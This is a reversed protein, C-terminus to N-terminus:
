RIGCGVAGGAVEAAPASTRAWRAFRALVNTVRKGDLPMTGLVGGDSRELRVIAEGFRGLFRHSDTLSAWDSIKEWTQTTVELLDGPTEQWPRPDAVADLRELIDAMLQTAEVAAPVEEEVQAKLAQLRSVAEQKSGTPIAQVLWKLVEIRSAKALWDFPTKKGKKDSGPQAGAAALARTTRGDGAKAGGMDEVFRDAKAGESM